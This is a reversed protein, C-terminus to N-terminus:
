SLEYKSYKIVTKNNVKLITYFLSDSYIPFIGFKFVNNLFVTLKCNIFYVFIQFVM